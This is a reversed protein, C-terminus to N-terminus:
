AAELDPQAPASSRLRRGSAHASPDAVILVVGLVIVAGAVITRASIPESALLWGLFVAVVPNVFAYTAVRPPAAVDLLWRYASFAVISGFVALYGFALVSRLSIQFSGLAAVDGNVLGAGLLWLGGALMTMASSLVHSRPFPARPSYLSGAAWSLSALVLVAGGAPDIGGGSPGGGGVLLGVGAFGAALGLVVRGSPRPGGGAMWGLVVVCLPETAIMLAALGSNVRQEAWVVGGNGGLFLLAGVIAASRMHALKPPAAGRLRAWGYLLAGAVLFRMGAMFFPPLTELAIRIALYTSGWIIYIAAFAAVLTWRAPSATGFRSRTM